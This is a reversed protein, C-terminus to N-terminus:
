AENRGVLKWAAPVLAVAVAIKLADGILFPTVGAAIAATPSLGLVLALGTAGLVYIVANGILMVGAVQSPRRALGREALLGVIVGAAVFGVLYGVTAGGTVAFWPVGAVGAAIYLLSGSTARGAGLVIAGLLVVLTQGTIPVPTFPLPIAIQASAAIAVAFGVVLSVDRVRAGPLSEVLVRPATTTSDM